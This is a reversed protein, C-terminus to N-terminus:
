GEVIIYTSEKFYVEKYVFAHGIQQMDQKNCKEPSNQFLFPLVLVKALLTIRRINLSGLRFFNMWPGQGQGWYIYCNTLIQSVNAVLIM